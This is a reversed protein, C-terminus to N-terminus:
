EKAHGVYIADIGRGIPQPKKPAPKAKAPAEAAKDDQAAPLSLVLRQARSHVPSVSLAILGPM